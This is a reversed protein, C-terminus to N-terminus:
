GKMKQNFDTESEIVNGEYKLKWGMSNTLILIKSLESILRNKANSKLSSKEIKKALNARVIKNIKNYDDGTFPNMQSQEVDYYKIDPSIKIEEKPINVITITKNKEDIDYKVQRLDYAVTVEANVIVIAKKEFSVMDMLYKNQDKYTVVEAFHGETVVLKGVNVIQQQILNTNYDLSSDDEKKFECFKFLLVISVIIGAGLLIRRQM